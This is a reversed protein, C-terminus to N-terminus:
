KQYPLLFKFGKGRLMVESEGVEEVYLRHVGKKIKGHSTSYDLVNLDISDGKVPNVIPAIKIHSGTYTTIEGGYPRASDIIWTGVGKRKVIMKNNLMVYYSNKTTDYWGPVKLEGEPKVSIRITKQEKGDESVATVEAEGEYKPTIELMGTSGDWKIDIVDAPDNEQLTVREGGGSISVFKSIDKPRLQVSSHSIGLEPFTVNIKLRVRKDHSLITAFTEGELLGKVKLTDMSMQATAIQSNEVNVIYKGNGGSVILRKETQKNLSLEEVSTKEKGIRIDPYEEKREECAFFGIICFAICLTSLINKSM